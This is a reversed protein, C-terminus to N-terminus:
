GPLQPCPAVLLEPNSTGFVEFKLGRVRADREDRKERWDRTDFYNKLAAQYLWM